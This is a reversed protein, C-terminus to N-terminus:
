LNGYMTRVGKTRSARANMTIIVHGIKQGSFVYTYAEAIRDLPYNIDIEPRFRGEAALKKIFDLNGPIDKPALFLVKKGGTIRAIFSWLLYELGGSSNYIGKKKLLRKCTLFGTKDVADFIYVYREKDKTFDQTNYDIM